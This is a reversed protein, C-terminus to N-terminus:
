AAELAQRLDDILDDVDELGVALRVMSDNIGIAARGEEGIARHTTTAPHTILSKADGLNNSIDIVNLGNLTRFAAEKGGGICFTVNTSGRKMQKQALEYQPHSVHGPYLVGEIKNHGSLFQAIKESNDCHRAVRLELTELGKLMIWANFPSLAPGTHRVFPQLKDTFFENSCLIAGGMARGQGDIHKTASYVVIDAGLTTPRQLIPTSFVNDIVVTAGAEHALASVAEIDILELTPNAPTEFFVTKAGGKLADRWQDLDPGDVLITEIGWKPLIETLVVHCSGFLARSAVIKDGANVQCALSAFVAAMGSATGFCTETGELLTLREEFMRVTPNGYRSYIFGDDEGKFRAESQEASEYVFGSNLFIPESTEGFGTRDLGGRVLLTQPRLNKENFDSM